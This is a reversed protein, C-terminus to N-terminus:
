TPLLIYTTLSTPTFLGPQGLGVQPVSTIREPARPAGAVYPCATPSPKEQSFWDKLAM